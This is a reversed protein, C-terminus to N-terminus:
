HKVLSLIIIKMLYYPYDNNFAVNIVTQRDNYHQWLLMYKRIVTSILDQDEMLRNGYFHIDINFYYKKTFRNVVYMCAYKQLFKDSDTYYDIVGQIKPDFDKSNLYEIIEDQTYNDNLYKNNLVKNYIIDNMM